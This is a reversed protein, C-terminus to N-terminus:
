AHRDREHVITDVRGILRPLAKLDFHEADRFLSQDRLGDSTSLLDWIPIFGIGETACFRKYIRELTLRTAYRMRVPKWHERMELSPPPMGLVYLRSFGADRLARLGTFLPEIRAEIRARVEGYGLQTPAQYAPLADFLAPPDEVEFSFDPYLEQEIDWSDVGGCSIVTSPMTESPRFYLEETADNFIRLTLPTFLDTLNDRARVTCKLDWFVRTMHEDFRGDYFFTSARFYPRWRAQTIIRRDPKLPDVFLRGGLLRLQSDGIFNITEPAPDALVFDGTRESM